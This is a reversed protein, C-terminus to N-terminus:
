LQIKKIDDVNMRYVKRITSKMQEVKGTTFYNITESGEKEKFTDNIKDILFDVPNILQVHPLFSKIAKEIAIYHTCALLIHEEGKLKSFIMAIEKEIEDGELMGNEILASLPQAIVQNVKIGRKELENKYICSDVTRKGGVLGIQIVKKRVVEDIGASIVGWRNETENIVTSAANCAVIIKECNEKELFGCVQNVRDKLENEPVKGYPAFGTDSFYIIDVKSIKRLRLMFDIGGIGWDLIGIKM